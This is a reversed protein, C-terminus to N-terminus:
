NCIVFEITLALYLFFPTFIFLINHFSIVWTLQHSPPPPLPPGMMLDDFIIKALWWDDFIFKVSWWDDFIVNLNFHDDPWWFYYLIIMLWWFYSVPLWLDDLTEWWRIMLFLYNCDEIMLFIKPWDDIM